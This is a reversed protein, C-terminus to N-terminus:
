NWRSDLLEMERAEKLENASKKFIEVLQPDFQTGINDTIELIAYEHPLAMRYPAGRVIADYTDAIAVVRALFPIATALQGYPYGRGDWREHHCLAIEAALGWFRNEAPSLPEKKRYEELLRGGYHTHKHLVRWEAGTLEEQKNLIRDPIISIGVDHYLVAKCITERNLGGTEGVGLGQNDAYQLLIDTMTSVCRSHRKTAEPLVDYFSAIQIEGHYALTLMEQNM